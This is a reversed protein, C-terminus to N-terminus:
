WRILDRARVNEIFARILGVDKVGREIEVGSSVDVGWPRTMRIAGAVNGPTLGGALIWFGTPAWEKVGEWAWASGSGPVVSDILLLDEGLIGCNAVMGPTFAIARILKWPGDRLALFDKKSYDGHLQLAAVGSADALSRIVEVPERRFVGVTLIGDPVREILNRAADASVERPSPTLVLGVADAGATVAVDVAEKTRLGCIKVLM